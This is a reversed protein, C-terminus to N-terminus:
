PADQDTLDPVSHLSFTKLVLRRVLSGEKTYDHQGLRLFKSPIELSGIEEDKGLVDRDYVRVSISDNEKIQIRAAPIVDDVSARKGTLALNRVDVEANSWRALLSDAKVSSTYVRQGQWYIEVYLDPGSNDLSDWEQNLDNRPAVQVLTPQVYYDGGDMVYETERNHREHSNLSRVVRGTVVVLIIPILIYAKGKLFGM